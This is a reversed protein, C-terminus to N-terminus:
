SFLNSPPARLPNNRSLIVYFIKRPNELFTFLQNEDSSYFIEPFYNISSITSAFHSVICENDLGVLVDIPATNKESHSTVQYNGNRLDINHYHFISLAVLFIYGGLLLSTFHRRYKSIYNIMKYHFIM